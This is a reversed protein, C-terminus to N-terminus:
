KTCPRSMAAGQTLIETTNTHLRWSLPTSGGETPRERPTALDVLVASEWRSTGPPGWCWSACVAASTRTFPAAPPSPQSHIKVRSLSQGPNRKEKKLQWVWLSLKPQSLWGPIKWEMKAVLFAFEAPGILTRQCSRLGAMKWNLWHCRHLGALIVPTRRHQQSLQSATPTTATVLPLAPETAEGRRAAPILAAPLLRATPVGSCDPAPAGPLHQLESPQPSRHTQHQRSMPTHQTGPLAGRAPSSALLTSATSSNLVFANEQLPSHTIFVSDNRWECQHPPSHGPTPAAEHLCRPMAARSCLAPKQCSRTNLPTPLLMCVPKCRQPYRLTVAFKLPKKTTIKSSCLLPFPALRGSSYSQLLWSLSLM